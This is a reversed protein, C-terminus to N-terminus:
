LAFGTWRNLAATMAADPHLEVDDLHTIPAVGRISSLLWAGDAGEIDAVTGLAYTTPLAEAAAGDFALQQTISPLIGTGEHPTTFLVGDRWWVLSSTPGELAYGDSSTFLVDDAGRRRAERRAAAHVAYSITKAGGLLWPVDGFLDSAYGRTLTVVRIGERAASEDFPTITVTGFPAGPNSEPGRTVVLKCVAEGPEHWASVAEDVLAAWAARDFDIEMLDASRGFRDLHLGLNEVRAAGDAGTVVRTADFCGDGRTFGLDDAIIVPEAADVIGRGLVAVLQTKM